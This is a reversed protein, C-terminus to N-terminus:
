SVLSPLLPPGIRYYSQIYLLILAIWIVFLGKKFLTRRRTRPLIEETATTDGIRYEPHSNRTRKIQQPLIAAWWGVLLGAVVHLLVYGAAILFSYNTLQRQQTIGNIFENIAIWLDNGYVITLVIIRQLGSELLAIIGLLVCSLKYFRRNFFLLEGVAGQFFVALYALPPAQPSLMMKFIAVIVTAKLIAGRAPVYYAILCICIVACSGVFLGSVPIRMAHIIGGLLAECLVWLAILRYYIVPNTGPYSM